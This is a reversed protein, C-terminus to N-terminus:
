KKLLFYTLAGLGILTFSVGCGISFGQWFKSNMQSEFNIHYLDVKYNLVDIQALSKDLEIKARELENKNTLTNEKIKQLDIKLVPIETELEYIGYKSSDYFTDGAHCPICVSFFFVLFLLCNKRM